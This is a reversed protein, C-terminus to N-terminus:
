SYDVGCIYDAEDEPQINSIRLYHHAGSSSGSFRNSIGDGNVYNGNDRLFMLYKWLGDPHQQYWEINYTSHQSSLTCTFKVSAGLSASAMPSQTLVPQSFSRTSDWCQCYYDAENKAQINSITLTAKNGSNSGSFQDPIGDPRANDNYIVLVPAHGEKQQYWHVNKYSLEDGSCTITATQGLAVSLSSPQTLVYSAM